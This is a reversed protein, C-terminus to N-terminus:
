GICVTNCEPGSWSPCACTNACTIVEHTEPCGCTRVETCGCTRYDTQPCGCTHHSAEAHARVTGPDAVAEDTTAYSEVRLDDLALTLKKMM